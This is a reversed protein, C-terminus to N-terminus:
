DHKRPAPKKTPTELERIRLELLAAQEALTRTKSELRTLESGAQVCVLFLIAITVFFVLNIPAEIGILDAVWTLTAPFIAAILAMTGAVLWGIAHRERLQNRRLLEIVVILILAASVIGFIYTTVTM